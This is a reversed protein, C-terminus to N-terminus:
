PTLLRILLGPMQHARLEPRRPPQEIIRAMAWLEEGRLGGLLYRRLTSVQSHRAFVAVEELPAGLKTLAQLAGRRLSHGTLNPAVTEVTRRAQAKSCLRRGKEYAKHMLARVGRTLEGKPLAAFRGPRFLLPAGAKTKKSWDLGLGPVSPGTSFQRERLAAVEGLRGATTWGLLVAAAGGAQAPSVLSARRARWTTWFAQMAAPTAAKAQRVRNGRAKSRLARALHQLETPDAGRLAFLSALCGAYNAASADGVRISTLFGVASAPSLPTGASRCHAQLGAWLSARQRWRQRSVAARLIRRLRRRAAGRRRM